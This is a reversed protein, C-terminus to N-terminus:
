QDDSSVVCVFIGTDADEPSTQKLDTILKELQFYNYKQLRFLLPCVFSTHSLATPQLTPRTTRAWRSALLSEAFQGDTPAKLRLFEEALSRQCVESFSRNFLQLAVASIAERLARM